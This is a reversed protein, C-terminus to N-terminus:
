ASDRLYATLERYTMRLRGSYTGEVPWRWCTDAKGNVWQAVAGEIGRRLGVVVLSLDRGRWQGSDARITATWGSSEAQKILAGVSRTLPVGNLEKQATM